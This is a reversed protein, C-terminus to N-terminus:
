YSTAALGVLWANSLDISAKGNRKELFAGFLIFSSLHQPCGLPIGAIGETTYYLHYVLQRLGVGKHALIRLAGPLWTLHPGAFAYAIFACAVVVIPWGVVRRAAELVFLIGIAGVILDTRTVIGARLVLEQYNVM